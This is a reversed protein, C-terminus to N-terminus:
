IRKAEKREEEREERKKKRKKGEICNERSYKRLRRERQEGKMESRAIAGGVRSRKM